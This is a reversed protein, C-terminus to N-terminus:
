PVVVGHGGRRPDGAAALQGDPRREVASVGGFYLNRGAWPNVQQGEQQLWEAAEEPWGGEIQIVGNEVHLRPHDIARDVALGGAVVHHIVQLIAGSLRVSGTSGVVLRPRDGDLVLTPAMMSPLREGARRPVTGIVDLEGLMNNLQFGRSFVGSGSGLTSSLAAANGDGDLVSVHTTGTLPALRASEGYGATLAAALAPALAQESTPGCGDLTELGAAVVAGGLSPPPCTVVRMGRFIAETPRREVVRYAAVDAALDPILEAVVGAGADRLRELWPRMGATEARTHSGYILRGEDTRELIPVLIELLFRQPGTMEVGTAALELAPEFVEAWALRGHAAHAEALGAVLGPVAVSSPGVHFVQTSADGFDILVEDMVEQSRSPVAFFCDLLTPERGAERLLLFGGGAPGTLPGEAVFAALAAAVAADVANGGQGLAWAGAEATHRNGAAVAGRM